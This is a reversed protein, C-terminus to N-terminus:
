KGVLYVVDMVVLKKLVYRQTCAVRLRRPASGFHDCTICKRAIDKLMKLDENTFQEKPNGIRLFLAVNGATSHETNM